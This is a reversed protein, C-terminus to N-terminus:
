HSKLPPSSWKTMAMGTSETTFHNMDARRQQKYDRDRQIILEWLVIKEQKMSTSETSPGYLHSVLAFYSSFIRVLFMSRLSSSKYWLRYPNFAHPRFRSGVRFIRMHPCQHCFTVQLGEQAHWQEVSERLSWKSARVKSQCPVMDRQAQITSFKEPLPCTLAVVSRRAAIGEVKVVSLVALHLDLTWTREKHIKNHLVNKPSLIAALGNHCIKPLDAMYSVWLFWLLGEICLCRLACQVSEYILTTPEQNLWIACPYSLM